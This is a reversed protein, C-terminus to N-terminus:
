DWLDLWWSGHPMLSKAVEQALRDRDIPVAGLQIDIEMGERTVIAFTGDGTVRTNGMYGYEAFPLGVSGPNVITSNRFRRTMQVHTHGGAFVTHDMGALVADLEAGTTRDTITDSASQPSGHFGLMREGGGLDVEITAPLSALFRRHDDDLQAACWSGIEFVPRATEPAGVSAPNAWWDPTDLMDADTNGMVVPCDLDAIREVAGAPDPGSSALDGLCVIRDVGLSRIAALVADLAATNGHIDAVLAIRM